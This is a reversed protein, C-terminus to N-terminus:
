PPFVAIYLVFFFFVLTIVISPLGSRVPCLIHPLSDIWWQLAEKEQEFQLLLLGTKQM